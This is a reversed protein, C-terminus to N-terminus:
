SPNWGPLWLVATLSSCNVHRVHRADEVVLPQSSSAVHFWGAARHASSTLFAFEPQQLLPQCASAGVAGYGNGISNDLGHDAWFSQGTSGPGTAIAASSSPVLFQQQQQQRQVSPGIGGQQAQQAHKLNQLCCLTVAFGARGDWKSPVVAVEICDGRTACALIGDLLQSLM